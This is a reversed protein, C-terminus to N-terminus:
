RDESAQGNLQESLRREEQLIHGLQQLVDVVESKEMMLEVRRETERTSCALASSMLCKVVARLDVRRLIM